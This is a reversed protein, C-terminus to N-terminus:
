RDQEDSRRWWNVADGWFSAFVVGIFVGLFFVWVWV